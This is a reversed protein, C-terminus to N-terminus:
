VKLIGSELKLNDFVSTRSKQHIEFYEFNQHQTTDIFKISCM